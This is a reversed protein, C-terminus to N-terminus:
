YIHSHSHTATTNANSVRHNISHRDNGRWGILERIGRALCVSLRNKRACERENFLLAFCFWLVTKICRRLPSVRNTWHVQKVVHVTCCTANTWFLPFTLSCILSLPFHKSCCEAHLDIPTVARAIQTDIRDCKSRLLVLLPLLLRLACDSCCCLKM